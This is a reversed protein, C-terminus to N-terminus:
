GMLDMSRGLTSVNTEGGSAPQRKALETAAQSAMAAARAAVARDQGSTDVPAM